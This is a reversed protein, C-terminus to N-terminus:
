KAYQKAHLEGMIMSLRKKRKEMPDEVEGGEAFPESMEDDGEDSLFDSKDAMHEELQEGAMGGDSYNEVMGGHMLKYLRAKRSEMLEDPTEMDEVKHMEMEPESMMPEHMPDEMENVEGGMAKKQAKKKMAYAIALSQKM